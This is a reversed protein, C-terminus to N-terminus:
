KKFINKTVNKNFHLLLRTLSNDNETQCVSRYYYFNRNFCLSAISRFHFLKNLSSNSADSLRLAVISFSRAFHVQALKEANITMRPVVGNRSDTEQSLYKITLYVHFVVM